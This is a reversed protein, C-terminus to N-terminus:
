AYTTTARKVRTDTSLAATSFMDDKSRVQINASATTQFAFDNGTTVSYNGESLVLANATSGGFRFAKAGNSKEQHNNKLRVLKVSDGLVIDVYIHWATEVPKFYNGEVTANTNLTFTMTTATQGLFSNNVIRAVGSTVTALSYDATSVTNNKFEKLSSVTLKSTSIKCGDIDVEQDFIVTNYKFDYTCNRYKGIKATFRPTPSIAFTDEFKCNVFETNADGGVTMYDTFTSNTVIANEFMAYRSSNTINNICINNDFVNVNYPDTISSVALKASGVRVEGYLINGAVYLNKAYPTSVTSIGDTDNYNELINNTIKISFGEYATICSAQTDYIHNRNIVLNNLTFRSDEIDIGSQPASGRINHIINGEILGNENLSATIGQRRCDHIHCNLVRNHRGIKTAHVFVINDFDINAHTFIVRFHTADSPPIVETMSLRKNTYLYTGNKYFAVKVIKDYSLVKAGEYWPEILINKTGNETYTNLDLLNSVISTTVSTDVVGTANIDGVQFASKYLRNNWNNNRYGGFYVGDGTFETLELHDVTNNEGQVYIGFGHSHNSGETYTHEYKDGKLVGNTIRSNKADVDFKFMCYGIFSNPKVKLTCGNLDITVNSPVMFTPAGKGDSGAYPTIVFEKKYPFKIVNAGIEKAKNIAGQIANTDVEDNDGSSLPRFLYMIDSQSQSLGNIKSDVDKIDKALKKEMNPRSSYMEDRNFFLDKEM